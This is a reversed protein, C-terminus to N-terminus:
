NILLKPLRFWFRSGGESRPLYGITGGWREVTIRCFYLGLGARGSKEKGQSFKEFLTKSIDQPVGPGEDDVTLLIFDGNEQLNITVTSNPPSHRLANEVLNSLVRELRSKEGVVKWDRSMDIDPALQLKVQNLSFGPLLANVIERACILVDPAQAPDLTFATLSEVEASFADLIERILMEQKTCQKMGIELYQKAKPTLDQLGLLQFCYNIATLEGALDHVICHILIEKKQIEKVLRYYSLSNQRGKQILSQKEEYTALEGLSILLIKKNSLRVATAELHCENGLIDIESWLGSKLPELDNGMWFSEADILFNEMFPFKKGLTLRDRESAIDPYFHTFWDPVTGIISFSDDDLHEMVVIDLAAFLDATISENM